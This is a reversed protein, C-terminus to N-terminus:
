CGLMSASEWLLQSSGLGLSGLAGSGSDDDAAKFGFTQHRVVDVIRM